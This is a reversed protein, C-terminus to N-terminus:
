HLIYFILEKMLDGPTTNPNNIGKSKADVQRIYKIINMTKTANYLKLGEVYDKAAWPSSLKLAAAVGRDSKDKAFHAIMLNQFFSFLQPLFSYLSVTKPNSDIFKVIRNAKLLDKKVIANRLEFFNYDKSIGIKSEVIDPTIRRDDTLSILVKDIESTLRSLDTGVFDAIMQTAKQEITADKSKVYAEIFRPLEYEKKKPSDFVVGVGAAKKMFSKRADLKKNKCCIVLITSSLPNDFYKDFREWSRMNQAEKVMVVQYDSMMPFRRSLDVVQASNTELGYVVTQNFDKEEPRLAHEEIYDSIQDIYYPEEGMLIYVPYFKRARLDRMISDFTHKEAM